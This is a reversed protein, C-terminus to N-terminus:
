LFFAQTLRVSRIRCVHEIVESLHDPLDQGASRRFRAALLGAVAAPRGPPGMGPPGAAMRRRLDASGRGLTGRARAGPRHSLRASQQPEVLRAARRLENKYEAPFMDGTYFTLGLAGVHPGLKVEPARDRCVGEKGFKPDAIDGQHCYPFGFHQGAATVHNVEDSPRNDGLGDGGNDSFWLQGNGPHFTLGVSNRVGRVYVEYASGDPNMRVITGYDKEPECVNCPAGLAMYLKNDPGFAIYRWQHNGSPQFGDRVVAPQPPNRLRDEIGDYRIIRQMEAVYIAGNHFAIGNAQNLGTAITLVEDARGDANTDRVAYVAGPNGQGTLLGFSGVFLTGKAGLAMSRAAPVQEAYVSIQFGPPLRFTDLRVAPPPGGRGDGGPGGPAAAGPGGPRGGGQGQASPCASTLSAVVIAVLPLLTKPRM